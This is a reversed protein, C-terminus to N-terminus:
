ALAATLEARIGAEIQPKMSATLMGLQLNVIVQTPTITFTGKIPTAVNYTTPSVWTGHISYSKAISALATTIRRKAEDIGRAHQHTINIEVAM